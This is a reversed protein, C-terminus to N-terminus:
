KNRRWQTCFDRVPCYRECRNGNWHEDPRCDPVAEPFQEGQFIARLKEEVMIDLSKDDIWPVDIKEIPKGGREEVRSNFDKILAILKMSKCNPFRYRRYLNVQWHYTSGTWIGQKLNYVDWFFKLTKYDVLTDTLNDYEDPQGRIIVERGDINLRHEFYNDEESSYRDVGASKLKKHQKDIMAHWATGFTSYVLNYPKEYYDYLRSYVILKVPKLVETVSYVNEKLERINDIIHSLVPYPLCPDDCKTLCHDFEYCGKDKPCRFGILM